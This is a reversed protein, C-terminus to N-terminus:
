LTVDVSTPGYFGQDPFLTFGGDSSGYQADVRYRGEGVKTITYRDQGKAGPYTIMYYGGNELARSGDHTRLNRYYNFDTFGGKGLIRAAQDFTLERNSGPMTFLSFVKDQYYTNALPNASYRSILSYHHGAQLNINTIFVLSTLIIGSKTTPWSGNVIKICFCQSM